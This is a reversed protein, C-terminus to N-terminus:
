TFIAALTILWGAVIVVLILLEAKAFRQDGRAGHFWALVAAALVAPIMTALTATFLVQPMGREGAEDAIGLLVMGAAATAGVWQPVRRYALANWSREVWAPLPLAPHLAAPSSGTGARLRHAISRPKPRAAPERALCRQILDALLPDVLAIAPPVVGPKGDLRAVRAARDDLEGHPLTGTIMEFAVVGLSYVDTCEDVRAGAFQEPSVYRPDGLIQGTATLKTPRAHAWAENVTAIGFDVVTAHGTEEDLLINDPRIDRHIVGKAHAADLAEAVDAVVTRAEEPSLVGEATLRQQLTRGRVYRMVLYPNGGPLVGFHYISSVRPHDISAAARAEREFRALAERSGAVEPRLVKVTVVRDLATDRALYVRASAGHGLVREIELAPALASRVADDLQTASDAGLDPM